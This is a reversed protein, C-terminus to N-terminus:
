LISLSAHRCTSELPDWSNYMATDAQQFLEDANKAITPLTSIGLSVTVRMEIDASEIIEIAHRIREAVGEAEGISHNPLLVVMEEGGYRFADGKGVIAQSIAIAVGKLVADGIQHGYRDNFAKFHDIDIVVLSLPRNSNADAALLPLTKNYEGRNPIGVVPDLQRETLSPVHALAVIQALEAEQIKRGRESLIAWGDSHAINLLRNGEFLSWIWLLTHRDQTPLVIHSDAELNGGTEDRGVVNFKYLPEVSGWRRLYQLLMIALDLDSRNM